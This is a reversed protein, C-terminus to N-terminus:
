VMKRTACPVHRKNYLLLKMKNKVEKVKEHDDEIFNKKQDYLKDILDNKMILTWEKGDYEMAYQSKMSSIYINHHEPHKPNFHIADTLQLPTFFGNLNKIIENKDIKSMDAVLLLDKVTVAITTSLDSEYKEFKM